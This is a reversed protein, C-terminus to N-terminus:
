RRSFPCEERDVLEEMEVDPGLRVPFPLKGRLHRTVCNRVSRLLHLEGVLRRKPRGDVLNPTPFQM